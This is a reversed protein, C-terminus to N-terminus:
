SGSQGADQRLGEIFDAIAAVDGPDFRPLPCGPVDERAAVAVIYRDSQWLMTQSDAPSKGGITELKPHKAGKYGEILVIDCPSLRGAIADLSPESEDEGLEHILAWRKRSVIAVERAGAQRHAFSDTGERDIDFAHHAHKITSVLRGRATLERVLAAVLTTKGSNKWGVIGFRFDASQASM